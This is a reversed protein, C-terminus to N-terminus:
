PWVGNYPLFDQVAYPLDFGTYTLPCVDLSFGVDNTHPHLASERLRLKGCRQAHRLAGQLLLLLAAALRRAGRLLQQLDGFAM